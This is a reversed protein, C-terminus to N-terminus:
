EIIIKKNIILKDTLLQINYIGTPSTRLDVEKKYKGKINNLAETYISQGLINTINIQGEAGSLVLEITFEGTNPNPYIKLQNNISPSQNIGTGVDVVITDTNACGNSDIVQVFYTDASNVTITQTTDGTSWNYSVLGPGADLIIACTNCITIDPGLDVMPYNSVITVISACTSLNGSNDAVTVNVANVGMNNCDFTNPSATFTAIGCADTSGGDLDNATITVNGTNDLYATINQCVATPALTDLVTVVAVCVDVKGNNDTVILTVNNAGTNSCTFATTSAVLTAIGCIDSSGGDIDNATITANGTNDLYATINQCVVTPAVFPM